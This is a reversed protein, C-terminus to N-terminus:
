ESDDDALITCCSATRCCRWGQSGLHDHAMHCEGLQGSRVSDAVTLEEPLGSLFWGEFLETDALMTPPPTQVERVQIHCLVVITRSVVGGCAEYVGTYDSSPLFLSRCLLFFLIRSQQRTISDLVLTSLLCKTLCV